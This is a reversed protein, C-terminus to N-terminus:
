RDPTHKLETAGEPIIGRRGLFGDKGQDNRAKYRVEMPNDPQAESAAAIRHHGDIVQEARPDLHVPKRVGSAAISDYLTRGGPKNADAPMTRSEELKYNWAEEDTLQDPGIGGMPTDSRIGMKAAVDYFDAGGMGYREMIEKPLLARQLQEPNVHSLPLLNGEADRAM